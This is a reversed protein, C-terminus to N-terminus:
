ASVVGHRHCGYATVHRPLFKSRILLFDVVEKLMQQDKQLRYQLISPEVMLIVLEMMESPKGCNCSGLNLFKKLVWHQFICFYFFTESVPGTEPFSQEVM